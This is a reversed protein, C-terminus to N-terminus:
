TLPLTQAMHTFVESVVSGCEEGEEYGPYQTADDQHFTNKLPFLFWALMHFLLLTPQQRSCSPSQPQLPSSLLFM